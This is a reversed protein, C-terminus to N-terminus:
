GPQPEATEDQDDKGHQRGHASKLYALGQFILTQVEPVAQPGVGRGGRLNENDGNVLMGELIKFLGPGPRAAIVGLDDTFQFSGSARRM